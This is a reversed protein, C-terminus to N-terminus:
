LPALGFVRHYLKQVNESKLTQLTFFGHHRARKMNELFFSIYKFACIYNCM